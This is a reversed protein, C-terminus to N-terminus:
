NYQANQMKVCVSIICDARANLEELTKNMDKDNLVSGDLMVSASSYKIDNANLLDAITTTKTTQVNVRTDPTTLTPNFNM